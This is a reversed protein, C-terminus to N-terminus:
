HTENKKGSAKEKNKCEKNIAHYAGIVGALDYTDTTETGHNSTATVTMEDETRMEKILSDDAAQNETWATDGRATMGFTQDGIAIEIPKKEKFTYGNSVSAANRGKSGPWHTVFFLAEGRKHFKGEQKEPQGAM